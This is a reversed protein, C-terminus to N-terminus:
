AQAARRTLVNDVSIVTTPIRNLNTDVFRELTVQAVEFELGTSRLADSAVEVKPRTVDAYTGLVYRQLNSLDVGEADVLYLKGRVTADRALVWLGANGVAGIGAWLVEGVNRSALERDAGTERDFNLLSVSVDRKSQSKLFVRRFLEACAFSAAAGAAYPNAPGGSGRTQHDLRAVWGTASPFLAGEAHLAGICVTTDDPAQDTVEIEPNIKRALEALQGRHRESASIALRPYLRACLNTSLEAIWWDNQHLDEACRIGVSVSGLAGTLSERSVGLHGGLAGYVREFFPALAM